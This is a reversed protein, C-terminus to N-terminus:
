LVPHLDLGDLNSWQPRRRERWLTLLLERISLASRETKGVKDEHVIQRREWWIYWCAVMVLEVANPESLEVGGPNASCILDELV